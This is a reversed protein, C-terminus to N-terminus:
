AQQELSVANNIGIAAQNDLYDAWRQMVERREDDFMTRDYASQIEDKKAHALQAELVDPDIKMKVRAVTRLMARFGHPAHKGGFGMGRLAASLADRHLHPNKRKGVSPFVYETGGTFQHMERLMEVAQTPLSVVHAHGTKMRNKRKGTEHFGDDLGPISWEARELDIESWRATAVVGSRLTTWAALLLACRVVFGEYAHIARMLPGIGQEQTVAPIHGGRHSPLVGDLVLVQDDERIGEHICYTVIGNLYQVAKKALSPVKAAMERLPTTVDKSRMTRMDLTGIKPQLYTHVVYRAKRYSEDAWGPKMAELWKDSLVMFSHKRAEEVARQAAIEAETRTQRQAQNAARQGVIPVGTRAAQHIEATKVRAEAVGMAPYDGIVVAGREGTPLLYRVQWSKAGSPTIRLHLNNGDPRTYVKAQPKFARIAKDTLQQALKPM